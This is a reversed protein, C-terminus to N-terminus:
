KQTIIQELKTEFGGAEQFAVPINTMAPSNWKDDLPRPTNTSAIYTEIEGPTATTWETLSRRIGEEYLESATGGMAWGRLAGEARLFFVEASNMVYSPLNAGNDNLPLWKTDVFSHDNNLSGVKEAAPLGNRVGKYGLDGGLRGGAENFYESLRPDAFGTLVSEMSASMRFENIYTWTSLNNISNITSLVGANDTNEMIVGAAVAKEAERQALEPDVYAIRMALRLRLSNAFKNWKTIDGGYVQDHSGFANGSPNEQFVAVAEDLLTFFNHYVDRQSDFPVSTQQNGFESYIIPGFYDTVKHFVVVKWVKAVANELFLSNEETFQEVFLLQPASLSYFDRYWINTWASIELFQDSNFNPHTTAFYQSYIDAFLNQGVQYQIAVTTWQSQAFAQGLLGGDINEVSIQNKPTNLDDYYDTCAVSGILFIGLPGMIRAYLRKISNKM